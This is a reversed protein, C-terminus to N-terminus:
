KVVADLEDGQNSDNTNEIEVMVRHPLCIITDSTRTIFGFTLCVKDPCDADIMEIGYDHVKLLNFHGDETEVKIEQPEATLEVTQHLKGNITIKAVKNSHTKESVEHPIAKIIIFIIAVVLVGAILFMDGRKLKM